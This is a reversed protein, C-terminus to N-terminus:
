RRWVSDTCVKGISVLAKLDSTTTLRSSEEHPSAGTTKLGSPFASPEENKQALREKVMTSVLTPGEDSIPSANDIQTSKENAVMEAKLQAQKKLRDSPGRKELGLSARWAMKEGNATNKLRTLNTGALRAATCTIM